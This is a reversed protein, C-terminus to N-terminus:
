RLTNKERCGTSSYEYSEAIREDGTQPRYLVRVLRGAVDYEYITLGVLVGGSENHVMLLKGGDDYQYSTIGESGDHNRYSHWATAGDLRFEMTTSDGWEKTECVDAGCSRIFCTRDLRCIHVKGRLGWRERGAM